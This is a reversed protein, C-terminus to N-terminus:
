HEVNETISGETKEQIQLETAMVLTMRRQSVFASIYQELLVVGNSDDASCYYYCYFIGLLDM